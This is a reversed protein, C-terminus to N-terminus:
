PCSLHRAELQLRPSSSFLKVYARESARDLISRYQLATIRHADNAMVDKSLFASTGKNRTDVLNKVLPQVTGKFEMKVGLGVCSNLDLEVYILM